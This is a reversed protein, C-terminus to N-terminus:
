DKTKDFKKSFFRTPQDFKKEIGITWLYLVLWALKKQRTTQKQGTNINVHWIFIQTNWVEYSSQIYAFAEFTLM